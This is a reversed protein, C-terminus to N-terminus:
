WTAELWTKQSCVLCMLIKQVIFLLSKEIHAL